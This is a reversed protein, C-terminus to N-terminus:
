DSVSLYTTDWLELTPGRAAVNLVLRLPPEVRKAARQM